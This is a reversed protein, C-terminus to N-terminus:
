SVDHLVADEAGGHRDELEGEAGVVGDDRLCAFKGPHGGGDLHGGVGLVGATAAEESRDLSDCAAAREEHRFVTGDARGALDGEGSADGAVDDRDLYARAVLVEDM